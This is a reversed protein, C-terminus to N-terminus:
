QFEILFATIYQMGLLYPLIHSASVLQRCVQFNDDDSTIHIDVTISEGTKGFSGFISLVVHKFHFVIVCFLMLQKFYHKSHCFLMFYQVVIDKNCYSNYWGLFFEFWGLLLGNEFWCNLLLVCFLLGNEITWSILLICLFYAM